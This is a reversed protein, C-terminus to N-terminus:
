QIPTFIVTDWFLLGPSKAVVKIKHEKTETWEFEGWSTSEAPDTRKIMATNEGDVYVAYDIQGSWLNSTIRYKGKMIKPTTVEVWWWGSMSLCDHNMLKGTNHDKFYYLMYDGEWKINKFTNQGDFWRMYHKGFYDGQKMDFHDTTEWVLATPRPQFVPLLDNVTHVAGNKAPYNSHEIIFGTYKQTAPILNLKYDTDVTVSVNNDYSLIPYLRTNFENLYYTEALCHYEMYRYFGNRIHTISDPANTFYAILQDINTIGYRNFTTDAVALITFRTRAMRKGFPFDIMNLTDKLNTRRLGETFLSFAPMEELVEFVSKSVPDLVKQIHHLVGNATIVNRRIIKSYKNLIIEAGEFETVLYDGIGNVDRIAGLGIDGTEIRSPILHNMVLSYQFDASFDRFSSVGKMTYYERMADNTPLFLTFPGRVSLLSNLGTSILLENFESFQENTEVYQTIVQETSRVNWLVPDDTCGVLLWATVFIKSGTTLIKWALNKM